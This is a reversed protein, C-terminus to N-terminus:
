EQPPLVEDSGSSAWESLQQSLQTYILNRDDTSSFTRGLYLKLLKFVDNTRQEIDKEQQKKKSQGECYKNYVKNISVKGKRLADLVKPTIGGRKGKAAKELIAEAHRVTNPSVGARDALIDYTNVPETPPKNLKSSVSGGSDRQRQKAQESIPDKLKLAGEIRQFKTMNRRGEQSEWIWLKVANRDKFSKAVTRYKRIRHKECIVWRNHGDVLISKEKWITLPTHVEKELCISDELVKFEQPTLPPLLACFEPDIKFKPNLTRKTAKDAETGKVTKTPKSGKTAKKGAKKAM